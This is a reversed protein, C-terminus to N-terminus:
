KKGSNMYALATELLYQLVKCTIKGLRVLVCAYGIHHPTVYFIEPLTFLLEERKERNISVMLSDPEASKNIAPCALIKGRVKLATSLKNTTKVVGPLKLGMTFVDNYTLKKGPM